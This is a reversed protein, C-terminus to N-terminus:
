MTDKFYISGHNGKNWIIKIICFNRFELQYTKLGLKERYSKIKLKLLIHDRHFTNLFMEGVEGFPELMRSAAPEEKSLHM